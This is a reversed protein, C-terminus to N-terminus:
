RPTSTIVPRPRTVQHEHKETFFGRLKGILELAKLKDWQRIKIVREKISTDGERRTTESAVEVTAVARAPGDELEAIPRLHGQEDSLRPVDSFAVVALQTLLQDIQIDFEIVLRQWKHDVAAHIHGNVESVVSRRLAEDM